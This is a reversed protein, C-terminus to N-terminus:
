KDASGVMSLLQHSKFPKKLFADAGAALFNDSNQAGSIGIIFMHPYHKKIIKALEAGNMGGMEHDSIVIDFPMTELVFLANEASNVSLTEFNHSTLMKELITRIALEDDVILVKKNIPIVM